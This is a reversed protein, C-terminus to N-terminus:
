GSVLHLGPWSRLIRNLYAISGKAIAMLGGQRRAHAGRIHFPHGLFHILATEVAHLDPTAGCEIHGVTEQTFVRPLSRAGQLPEHRVRRQRHEQSTLIQNSIAVVRIVQHVGKHFLGYLYADIDKADEIRHIVLAVVLTGRFGDLLVALNIPRLYAVGQCM